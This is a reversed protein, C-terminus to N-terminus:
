FPEWLQLPIHAQTGIQKDETITGRDVNSRNLYQKGCSLTPLSLYTVNGGVYCLLLTEILFMAHSFLSFMGGTMAMIM